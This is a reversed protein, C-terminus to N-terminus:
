QKKKDLSSKIESSWNDIVGDIDNNRSNMAGDFQNLFTLGVNVGEILFNRVKWEGQDNTRMSYRVDYGNNNSDTAQLQVSARGKKPDFDPKQDVVNVEVIEFTIFNKTYFRVISDKFIRTFRQKQEETAGKGHKGMVSRAISNFDVVPELVDILAQVMQDTVEGGSLKKQEAITGLVVDVSERVVKSPDQETQANLSGFFGLQLLVICGFVLLKKM